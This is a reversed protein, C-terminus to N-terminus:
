WYLEATWPQASGGPCAAVLRANMAYWGGPITTSQNLSDRFHQLGHPAKWSLTDTDQTGYPVTSSTNGRRMGIRLEQGCVGFTSVNLAAPGASHLRATAYYLTPEGGVLSSGLNVRTAKLASNAAETYLGAGYVNPHISQASVGLGFNPGALPLAWMPKDGPTLETILGTIGSEPTCLNHGRFTYQPSQYVVHSGALYASRSLASNLRTAVDNLWTRNVEPVLVCWSGSEFLTPYGMLLIRAQPARLKIEALLDPLDTRLDQLRSDVMQALTGNFGTDEPAQVGDCMPYTSPGTQMAATVCGMIIPGFGVDNGGISMTVLTTNADVFGRDLQTLEGYQATGANDIARLNETVAGSCALMQFDVSTDFSSVRDRMPTTSGVTLGYPWANTSRHCANRHPSQEEPNDTDWTSGHHDSGRFFGSGDGASTGEGSSYSDGLAVVMSSPKAPLEEFAVADWAIDDVGSLAEALDVDTYRGTNNALTVSPTGNFQLAGLSVWQNAYNRQNVSRVVPQGIGTAIEYNAQQTWAGHNPMHVYVRAWGNIQKNLTWKGSVDLAGGYASPRGPVRVHTFYFQSNFGSGLQHLDIKSPYDNSPGPAFTFEFTGSSGVPSSCGARVPATANPLNDIVLAGQPLGDRTCNAPYSPSAAPEPDAAAYAFEGRGCTSGCDVKWVVPENYWCKLDYKGGSVHYCPGPPDTTPLSPTWSGNPDCDNSANCFLTRPPRVNERNADGGLGADPWWAYQFATGYNFEDGLPTQNVSELFFASHAAFGLVKEPYPWRQPNAADEPSGDLFSHRLPDYNPNIPNNVWGVGWPTDALPQEPYFGTNYAWLAFFWNELYAPNGGNVTLGADYTENWKGILIQLGRAINAKYDTAIRLQDTYPQEGAEMGTTVQAVGYGCDASGYNIDWWATGARAGFYDGVLPNGTVGPVTYKSAQWFNSEQALIGLMVQPPVQGGGHLAPLAFATSSQVPLTGRIARNTAWEVQNPNPQLAQIAPNNREVACESGTSVPSTSNAPVTLSATRIAHVAPDTSSSRAADGSEGGEDSVGAVPAAEPLVKFAVEAGTATVATEIQVATAPDAEVSAAGTNGGPSYSSNVALEGATSLTATSAANPTLVVGDPLAQAVTDANGLVHVAGAGDRALGVGSPSGSAIEAAEPKSKSDSAVAYVVSSEDTTVVFLLDGDDTPTIRHPISSTAVVPEIGGDASVRVVASSGAAVIEEGAPVASTLQGSTSVERAETVSDPTATIIRTEGDVFQTFAVQNDTGCGPNFYALSYGGRLPTVEGTDLNVFAGFGGHDFLSEDNTFTRPGYVIAAHTGDGVLCSNGIWRDTEIGDVRLTAVRNWEYGASAPAVYVHFGEADGTTSWARDDSESWGEGLVDDRQDEPVAELAEESGTTEASADADISATSRPAADISSSASAPLGSILLVGILVGVTLERIPRHPRRAAFRRSANRMTPM